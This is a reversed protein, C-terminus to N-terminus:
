LKIWSEPFIDLTEDKFGNYWEEPYIVMNANENLYAGWFSFTSNAMIVYKCKSMLYMDYISSNVTNWDVYTCEKLPINHRCWEIDNSFIFFHPNEVHQCLYDIAKRYYDTQCLNTFLTACGSQLYDGRRVHLAVSNTGVIKDITTMNKENLPLNKFRVWKRSPFFRKSQWFDNFFIAIPSESYRFRDIIIKRRVFLPLRCLLLFLRIYYSKCLKIDVDFFKEIEYGNHDSCCNLAKVRLSREKFQCYLGYQFLQNGVGGKIIVIKEM